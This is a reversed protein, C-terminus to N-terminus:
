WKKMRISHFTDNKLIILHLIEPLSDLTQCFGLFDDNLEIFGNQREQSESRVYKKINKDIKGAFILIQDGFISKEFFINLVDYSTEKVLCLWFVITWPFIGWFHM